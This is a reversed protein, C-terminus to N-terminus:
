VVRLDDSSCELSERPGSSNRAAEPRALQCVACRAASASGAGSRGAARAEELDGRGTQMLVIVAAPARDGVDAPEGLALGLGARDQDADGRPQQGQDAATRQVDREASLVGYTNARGGGSRRGADDLRQQEVQQHDHERQEREAQGPGPLGAPGLPRQDQGARGRRRVHVHRGGVGGRRAADDGVRHRRHREGHHDVPDHRHDATVDQGVLLGRRPRGQAAGHAAAARSAPRIRSYESRNTRAGGDVAPLGAGSPARRPAAGPRRLGDAGSSVSSAISGGRASWSPRAGPATRARDQSRPGPRRRRPPSALQGRLDAEALYRGRTGRGITASSSSASPTMVATMRALM